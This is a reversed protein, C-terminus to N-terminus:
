AKKLVIKETQKKVIENFFMKFDAYDEPSIINTKIDLVSTVQIQKGNTNIIYKFGAIDDGFILNASTPISEVVYGDPINIISLFKDQDPYSFDIPYDRVEQKFPNESMVFFFLPSIYLKDAVKEIENNTKFSFTEIVPKSLDTKNDVKYESIEANGYRKELIELYNDTNVKGYKSRFNFADHANKQIFIKGEVIGESTLNAMINTAEKSIFKPSLNVSTSSGNKRILRGNWNIARHPLVDPVSNKDTADLLIVDNEIEIGAIVYDFANRSPYLAIGNSRSSVLIPNAEIGAYRLMAVLMLNIEAVNGSKKKFAEKVGDHCYYDHYGNWNMYEKVYSFILGIKQDKVTVGNLLQNIENEFYGTKSLESGFSDSQYIKSCITEWDTSYNEFPREPMRVSSLEHQLIVMYNSINNVFNEDKLAPVNSITYKAISEQFKINYTGRESRFGGASNVMEQYTGQYNNERQDLEVKPTLHGKIHTNYKFYEPIYTTYECYNIPISTQFDWDKFSGYNPSILKYSFEIISGEKVDPMMIKKQGWFRSVKEDFEGDSKLKTKVIKNNVLNYTVANSFYLSEKSSGELYYRVAHNAWDYGQKKYIKIKIDVKTETSFGKTSNYVFQTTGKKFLIAAVASTDKPHKKEELEQVTVNGLEVKQSFGGSTALISLIIFFNKM